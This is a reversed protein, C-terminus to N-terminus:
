SSHIKQKLLENVVEPSAKGKTLKMVQGVLFAFAKDKGAKFDAISQPNDALVQTVLKEIEAQDHVPSFDPNEKVIQKPSKEPHLVMEDAVSKAIRGTIEKQDIMNILEGVHAATIGSEIVSKGSEKYRGAFEVILWNCLSRANSSIKLAEEFYDALKKDSTLVFASHASLGLESVYRRERQLPLEPLSRRIEEIYADTLVIPVLDPEPFYRYDDASEKTRMLVTEKRDPDWRYTAQKIISTHPEDPRSTYERIQRKIEATLAMEMNSFSNMNKIEIKNRFGKEGKPRVSINADVRLSGEEMNCDSADIYQLIAKIALCYAVAEQPTHMCPESVIEVLPVGARNYDVGAFTSFHKLMGADDELHVHHIAFAKEVGDVEAIVTGGIVIPNEYQTIQFNRPSDPYFYSKRDFTSFHAVQAQVACGLQVAKRVAEQNLVPLAGPMGTCVETINTNPEDGFRNPAVSFLKSKTNLEAHIELGIITEWEQTM